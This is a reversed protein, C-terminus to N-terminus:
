RGQKRVARFDGPVEFWSADPDVGRRVSTIEMEERLTKGPLTFESNSSLLLGAPDTAYCKEGIRARQGERRGFVPSPVCALGAVQKRDGAESEGAATRVRADSPHIDMRDMVEVTKLAYDISYIVGTEKVWLTVLKGQSREQSRYLSGSRNRAVVIEFSRQEVAKGGPEVMQFKLMGDAIYPEEGTQNVPWQAMAALGAFAALAAM